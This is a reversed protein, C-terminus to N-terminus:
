WLHTLVFSENIKTKKSLLRATYGLSAKLKGDEQMERGFAPIV